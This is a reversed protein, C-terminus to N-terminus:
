AIKFKKLKRKDEGRSRILANVNKVKNSLLCNTTSKLLIQLVDWGLRKCVLCKERWDESENEAIFHLALQILITRSPGAILNGMLTPHQEIKVFIRWLYITAELVRDSPWTLSGRDLLSILVFKSETTEEFEFTKPESLVKLCAECKSHKFYSHVTYGAVFALSQLTTLDLQIFSIDKLEIIYDTLNLNSDSHEKVSSSFSALFEKLGIEPTGTTNFLKLISALKLRHETELIQCYTIHYHGGAMMRYLGFHHELPDNQLFSTLVYEFGCTETLYNVIRMLAVSSHKFSTFTQKSLKGSEPADKWNDLWTM